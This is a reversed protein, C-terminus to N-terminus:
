LSIQASHDQKCLIILLQMYWTQADHFQENTSSSSSPQSQSSNSSSALSQLESAELERKYPSYFLFNASIHIPFTVNRDVAM